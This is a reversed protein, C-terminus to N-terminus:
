KAEKESEHRQIHDMIGDKTFRIRFRAASDPGDRCRACWFGWDASSGAGLLWPASVISMYRRPERAPYTLEQLSQEIAQVSKEPTVGPLSRRDLLLKRSRSTKEWATYKGPLSRIHPLTRMLDKKALGTVKAAHTATVPLYAPHSTFCYYCVRKCTILYLYSGFDGCTACTSTSLTEFLTKCDYSAAEISNIARLVNPCHRFIMGYQYLSDVLDMARQNTRRFATLTPLDLAMLIGTILEPPLVHLQGLSHRPRVAHRDNDLLCRSELDADDLTYDLIRSKEYACEALRAANNDVNDM